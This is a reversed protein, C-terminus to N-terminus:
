QYNDETICTGFLDSMPRNDKLFGIFSFFINFFENWLNFVCLYHVGFIVLIAYKSNELSGENLNKWRNVTGVKLHELLLSQCM